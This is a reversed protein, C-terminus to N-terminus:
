AQAGRSARSGKPDGVGDGLCSAKSNGEHSKSRLKRQEGIDSCNGFIEIM